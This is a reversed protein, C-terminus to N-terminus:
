AVMDAFALRGEDRGYKLFHLLPDYQGEAIDAYAALYAAGDFRESPTRGERWGSEHYHQLPDM